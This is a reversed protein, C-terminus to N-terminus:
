GDVVMNRIELCECLFKVIANSDKKMFDGLCQESLDTFLLKHKKRLDTYLSFVSLFHHEDEVHGYSCCKCIREHRMQRLFRGTQIALCHSGCRFRAMTQLRDTNKIKSLYDAPNYQIDFMQGYTLLKIQSATTVKIALSSIYLRKLHAMFPGIHLQSSSECTLGIKSANTRFSNVWSKHGGDALFSSVRFTNHLLRDSDLKNLRDWYSLFVEM